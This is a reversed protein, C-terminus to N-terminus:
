QTIGGSYTFLVTASRINELLYKALQEGVLSRFVERDMGMFYVATTGALCIRFVCCYDHGYSTVYDVSVAADGVM